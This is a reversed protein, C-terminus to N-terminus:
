LAKRGAIVTADIGTITVRGSLADGNSPGRLSATVALKMAQGSFLGLVREDGTIETVTTDAVSATLTLPMMMVVPTTRPDTGPESLYFRLTDAGDGSYSESAVAIRLSVTHIDTIDALNGVLNIDAEPVVSQEGTSIGGPFAPVPGFTFETQSADLYSLVDVNLVVNRQGCAPLALLAVAAALVMSARRAARTNLISTNMLRM